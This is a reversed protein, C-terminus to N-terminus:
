TTPRPSSAATPKTRQPASRSSKRPPFQTSPPTVTSATNPRSTPSRRLAGVSDAQKATPASSEGEKPKAPLATSFADNFLKRVADALPQMDRPSLADQLEAARAAVADADGALQRADASPLTIIALAQLLDSMAVDKGAALPNGIKELALIHGLKLPHLTIEGVKVPAACFAGLIVKPNPM